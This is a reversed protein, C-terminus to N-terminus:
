ESGGKGQFVSDLKVLMETLTEGERRAIARLRKFVDRPVEVSVCDPRGFAAAGMVSDIMGDLTDGTHVAVEHLKEVLVTRMTFTIRERHEPVPEGPEATREHVPLGTWLSCLRNLEHLSDIEAKDDLLPAAAFFDNCFERPDTETVVPHFLFEIM